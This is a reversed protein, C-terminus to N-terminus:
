VNSTLSRPLPPTLVSDGRWVEESGRERVGGGGDGDGDVTRPLVVKLIEREFDRAPLKDDDSAHAAAAFARERKVQEEGFALSTEEIRHVGVRPLEHFLKRPRIDIEDGAQRWRDADLLAGRAAAAFAGDRRHGLDIM